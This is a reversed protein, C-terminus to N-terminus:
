LLREELQEILARDLVPAKGIPLSFAVRTGGGPRGEVWIKGGHAEVIARCINLGLGAGATPSECKASALKESIVKARDARVGPGNDSVAIEADRGTRRATVLVETCSPAHAIANELLNCLVREILVADFELFPVDQAVETRVARDRLRSSLQRLSTGIVEEIPQWQRRLHVSGAQLKAMDLLNCVLGHMRLAEERISEVVERKSPPVAEGTLVLADTLGVLATLPTRLDHSVASLLSNRLRESEVRLLAAQAVEVYHLRELVIAILSAVTELLQRAESSLSAAQLRVALVGRTRMPAALPLLIVPMGRTRSALPGLIEGENFARVLDSAEFGGPDESNPAVARLSGDDAPVYISASADLAKLLFGDAIEAVQERTLAGSIDRAIRLLTRTIRERTSAREAEQQLRSTLHGIVLAVVLMVGFTVLYQADSVAFSFQPDVFFYDFVGVSVVAAFASPARGHRVAVIVVALLFLMVINPQDIVGRLPYAIFAAALCVLLAFVYGFFIPRKTMSTPLM